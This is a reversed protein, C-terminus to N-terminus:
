LPEGRWWQPYVALDRGSPSHSPMRGEPRWGRCRDGVLLGFYLTGRREKFRSSMMAGFAASGWKWFAGCDCNQYQWMSPRRM